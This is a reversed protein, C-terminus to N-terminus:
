WKVDGERIVFLYVFRTMIWQRFVRLKEQDGAIIQFWKALLEFAVNSTPIKACLVDNELIPQLINWGAVPSCEMSEVGDDTYDYKRRKSTNETHYDVLTTMTCTKLMVTNHITCFLV